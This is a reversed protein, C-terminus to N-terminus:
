YYHCKQLVLDIDTRANLERASIVCHLMLVWLVGARWVGFCIYTSQSLIQCIHLECVSPTLTMNFSIRLPTEAKLSENVKRGLVCGRCAAREGTGVVQLWCPKRRYQSCAPNGSSKVM